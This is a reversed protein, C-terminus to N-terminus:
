RVAINYSVFLSKIEYLDTSNIHILRFLNDTYSYGNCKFCIEIFGLFKNNPGFLLIGNRPEYGCRGGLGIRKAQTFMFRIIKVYDSDNLNESDEIMDYEISDGRIITQYVKRQRETTIPSSNYADLITDKIHHPKIRVLKIKMLEDNLFKNIKTITISDYSSHISVNFKPCLIERQGKVSSCCILFLFTTLVRFLKM